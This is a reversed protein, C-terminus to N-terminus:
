PTSTNQHLNCVNSLVNVEQQIRTLTAIYENELLQKDLSSSTNLNKNNGSNCNCNNQKYHNEVHLCCQQSPTPVTKDSSHLENRTLLLDDLNNLFNDTAELNKLTQKLDRIKPSEGIEMDNQLTSNTSQNPLQRQHQGDNIKELITRSQKLIKNSLNHVTCRLAKEYNSSTSNPTTNSKPHFKMNFMNLSDIVNKELQDLTNRTLNDHMKPEQLSEEPSNVQYQQCQEVTPSNFNTQNTYLYQQHIPSCFHNQTNLFRKPQCACQHTNLSQNSQICNQSNVINRYKLLEEYEDTSIVKEKQTNISLLSTNQVDANKLRNMGKLKDTTEIDSLNLQSMTKTPFDSSIMSYQYPSLKLDTRSFDNSDVLNTPQVEHVEESKLSDIMVNSPAVIISDDKVSVGSDHATVDVQPMSHQVSPLPSPPPTHAFIEINFNSEKAEPLNKGSRIKQYKEKVFQSTSTHRVPHYSKNQQTLSASSRVITSNKKLNNAEKQKRAVEARLQVTRNQRLSFRNNETRQFPEVNNKLYMSNNRTKKNDNNINLNTSINSNKRRFKPTPACSKSTVTGNTGDFHNSKKIFKHEPSTLSENNSKIPFNNIIRKKVSSLLNHNNKTSNNNNTTTTTTMEKTAKARRLQFARNLKLTGTKRSKTSLTTTSVTTKIDDQISHDNISHSSSSLQNSPPSRHHDLATYMDDDDDDDDDNGNNNDDDDKKILFKNTNRQLENPKKDIRNNNNNKNDHNNEKLIVSEEVTLTYTDTSKISHGDDDVKKKKMKRKNVEKSNTLTMEKELANKEGSLIGGAFPPIDFKAAEPYLEYEPPKNELSRRSNRNNSPILGTTSSSSVSHHSSRNRNEIKGNRLLKTNSTRTPSTNPFSTFHNSSSSHRHKRHSNKPPINTRLNRFFQQTSLDSIRTIVPSRPFNNQGDFSNSGISPRSENLIHTPNVSLIEKIATSQQQSRNFINSTWRLEEYNNMIEEKNEEEEIIINDDIKQQKEKLNTRKKPYRKRFCEAVSPLCNNNEILEKLTEDKDEVSNTLHEFKDENDNSSCQSLDFYQDSNKIYEMQSEDGKEEEDADGGTTITTTLISTQRIHNNPSNKM